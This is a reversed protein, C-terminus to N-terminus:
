LPLTDYGVFPFSLRVDAYRLTRMGAWFRALPTDQSIGQASSKAM